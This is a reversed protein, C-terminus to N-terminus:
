HHVAIEGSFADPAGFTRALRNENKTLETTPQGALFSIVERRLISNGTWSRRLGRAIIEAVHEREPELQDALKEPIDITLRM